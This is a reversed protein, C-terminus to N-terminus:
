CEGRGEMRDVWKQYWHNVRGDTRFPSPCGNTEGDVHVRFMPKTMRIGWREMRALTVETPTMADLDDM